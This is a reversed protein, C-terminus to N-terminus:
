KERRERRRDRALSQDQWVQRVRARWAALSEGLTSQVALAAGIAAASALVVLSGTFRLREDLLSGLVSGFAGGAPLASGHWPINGLLVQCLGPLSVLLLPAGFGRGAVRAAGRRRLRRWGSLLLFLPLLFCSLGFFGFAVAAVQAGAPGIWNHSRAAHPLQHFLSADGPDYTSFSFALLLAMGVLVLGLLETGKEPSLLPRGPRPPARSGRSSPSIAVSM